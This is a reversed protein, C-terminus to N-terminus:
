TEESEDKKGEREALKQERESEAIRQRKLKLSEAFKAAVSESDKTAAAILFKAGDSAGSDAIALYIKSIAHAMYSSLVFMDSGPRTDIDSCLSVENKIRAAISMVRQGYANSDADTLRLICDDYSESDNRTYPYRSM